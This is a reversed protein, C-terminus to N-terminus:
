ESWSLLISNNSLSEIEVDEKEWLILSDRPGLLRDDIEFSGEIVYYLNKSSFLDKQIQKAKCDFCGISLNPSLPILKNKLENIELAITKAEQTENFYAILFTCVENTDNHLHSKINMKNEFIYVEGPYCHIKENRNYFVVSNYIPILIISKFLDNEISLQGDADLYVDWIDHLDGSPNNEGIQPLSYYQGKSFENLKRFNSLVIRGPIEHVTNNM